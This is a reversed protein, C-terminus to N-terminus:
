EASKAQLLKRLTGVGHTFSRWQRLRRTGAVDAIQHVGGTGLVFRSPISRTSKARESPQRAIGTGQSNGYGMTDGRVAAKEGVGRLSASQTTSRLALSGGGVPHSRGCFTGRRVARRPSERDPFLEPQRFARRQVVDSAAADGSSHHPAVRPKTSCSPACRMACRCSRCTPRARRLGSPDRSRGNGLWNPGQESDIGCGFAATLFRPKKREREGTGRKKRRPIPFPPKSCMKSRGRGGM